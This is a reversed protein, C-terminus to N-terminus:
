NTQRCMAPGYMRNYRALKEAERAGPKSRQEKLRAIVALNEESLAYETGTKGAVIEATRKRIAETVMDM